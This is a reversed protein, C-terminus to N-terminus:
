HAPVVPQSAASSSHSSRLSAYLNWCTLIGIWVGVFGIVLAKFWDRRFTPEPKVLFFLGVPAVYSVFVAATGGILELVVDIGPVAIAAALTASTVIAAELTFLLWPPTYEKSDTSRNDDDDDIVTDLSFETKATANNREIDQQRAHDGSESDDVTDSRIVL